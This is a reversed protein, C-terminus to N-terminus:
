CSQHIKTYFNFKKNFLNGSQWIKKVLQRAVIGSKNSNVAKKGKRLNVSM